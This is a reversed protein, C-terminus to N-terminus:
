HFWMAHLLNIVFVDPTSASGFRSICLLGYIHRIWDVITQLDETTQSLKFDTNANRNQLVHVFNSKREMEFKRPGQLIFTCTWFNIENQTCTNLAQRHSPSFHNLMFTPVFLHVQVQRGRHPDRCDCQPRPVENVFTAPTKTYLICYRRHCQLSGCHFM